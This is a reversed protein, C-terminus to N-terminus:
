EQRIDKIQKQLLELQSKLQAKEEELVFIKEELETIRIDKKYQKKPKKLAEQLKDNQPTENPFLCNKNSMELLDKDDFIEIVKWTDTDFYGGRRPYNVRIYIKQKSKLKKVKEMLKINNTDVKLKADPEGHTQKIKTKNLVSRLEVPVTIYQSNGMIVDCIIYNDIAKKFVAKWDVTVNGNFFDKENM